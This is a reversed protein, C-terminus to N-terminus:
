NGTESRPRDGYLLYPRRAERFAALGPQWSTIIDEPTKGAQLAIRLADGGAIHDFADPGSDGNPSERFMKTGPSHYM